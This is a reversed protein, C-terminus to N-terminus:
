DLSEPAVTEYDPTVKGSREIMRKVEYEFEDFDENDEIFAVVRRHVEGFKVNVRVPRHFFRSSTQQASM